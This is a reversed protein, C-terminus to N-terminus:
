KDETVNITFIRGDTNKFKLKNDVDVFLSTNDVETISNKMALQISSTDVTTHIDTPNNTRDTVVYIVNNNIQQSNILDNYEAQTVYETKSNNAVLDKTLFREINWDLDQDVFDTIIFLTDESNRQEETYNRYYELETVYKHKPQAELVSLRSDLETYNSDIRGSLNNLMRRNEEAFKYADNSRTLAQQALATAGAVNNERVANQLDKIAIDYANLKEKLETVQRIHYKELSTLDNRLALNEEELASYCENLIELQSKFQSLAEVLEVGVQDYIADIKKIYDRVCILEPTDNINRMLVGFTDEDLGDGLGMLAKLMETVGTLPITDDSFDEGRTEQLIEVISKNFIYNNDGVLKDQLFETTEILQKKAADITSISENTTNLDNRINDQEIGILAIDNQIHNILSFANSLNNSFSNNYNRLEEVMKTLFDLRKRIDVVDESIAELDLNYLAEIVIDYDKLKENIEVRYNHIKYDVEKVTIFNIDNELDTIKTPMPPVDFLDDYDGTFTSINNLGIQVILQDYQEPSLLKNDRVKDLLTKLETHTYGLSKFVLENNSEL